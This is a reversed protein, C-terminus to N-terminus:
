ADAALIREVCVPCIGHSVVGDPAAGRRYYEEPSIWDRHTQGQGVPWAVNHCYSCLTVIQEPRYSRGPQVLRDRSFLAMPIRISESILQSQYLVGVVHGRDSVPNMSMRMHRETEPGDCRCAYVMDPRRGAFVARHLARCADRVEGGLIADFLCTGTVASCTLGPADNGAAFHQWQTGGCALIKGTGNVLYACGDLAALIAEHGIQRAAPPM